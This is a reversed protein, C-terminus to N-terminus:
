GSRQNERTAGRASSIEKAQIVASRDMFGSGTHAAVFFACDHIIAARTM